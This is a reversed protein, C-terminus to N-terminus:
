GQNSELAKKLTLQLFCIKVLVHCVTPYSEGSMFDSVAEFKTLIPVISELLEFEEKEPVLYQLRADTSRHTCEKVAELAPRLQLVSRMMMLSSNWRTEVPTVM